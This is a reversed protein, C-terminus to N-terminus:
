PSDKFLNRLSVLFDQSIQLFFNKPLIGPPIMLNRPPTGATIKPSIGAFEQFLNQSFENLFIWCFDKSLNRYDKCFNDFCRRLFLHLFETPNSKFSNKSYFIRVFKKSFNKSSDKGKKEQFKHFFRPIFVPCIRM